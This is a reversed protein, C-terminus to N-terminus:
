IGLTEDYIHLIKEAMRDWTHNKAEKYAGEAMRERIRHDLMIEIRSSILGIDASNVVYGNMGDRVLDKAGVNESIVVPLSASMAELVAMGFTDFKSLMSFIDSALYVKEIDDKWVGSFIVDGALGCERALRSYKKENGKGAVLLKLKADPQKAKIRAMSAILNDLGKLEFNMSVFLLVTDAEGLGFRRRIDQRCRQRDLRSFKDIDVGPYVIQIKDPDVTFEQLFKEKTLSSVPLYKKCKGKHILQGEVWATGYDFLSMRKKRIERVWFRHPVSHMTFIDARFIREHTHILDFNTEGIEQNAFWAFSVTTLFKPFAIIPVKHFTIRDSQTRWQNAFVHIKYRDSAVIRETLELAYKEGGGVLGYKPIVVAVNRVASGM